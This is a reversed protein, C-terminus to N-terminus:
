RRLVSSGPGSSRRPGSSPRRRYASRLSADCSTVSASSALIVPIGILAIAAIPIGMYGTVYFDTPVLMGFGEDPQDGFSGAIILMTLPPFVFAFVM